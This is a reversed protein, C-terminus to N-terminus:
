RWSSKWNPGLAGGGASQEGLPEWESRDPGVSRGKRRGGERPSPGYGSEAAGMGAGRGCGMGECGAWVQDEVWM